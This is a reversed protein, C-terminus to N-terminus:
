LTQGFHGCVDLASRVGDEHFGYYWYAGCFYTHNHGNIAQRRKRAALSLPDYVPHDYPIERIVQARDVASSLNLTVCFERPAGLSQLINMNYTLAVRGLDEKPVHYNWSAWAVKRRPLLATDTHLIADNDQFRINGLVEQEQDSPDALMALAQHSHAAIIVKDFAEPAQGRVKVTVGHDRRTVSEVPCQLRIKDRFRRTMPEIYSNSGGKIVLWGPQNKINLIGHNEFFEVFLRAPFERFHLPDASWISDGMPIIFHDIFAKSYRNQTLYQDLTIRDDDGKLLERAERRFRFVDRLMRYFSPNFLNKRQCFLANLSTPSFEIGTRACQVSFSMNSDQWTVGLRGLLKVFNPYTKLNFVIFGTDVPYVKGNLPIDITNTHGGIYDNAEFVTVDHSESLLYASTLGSIGSGIVAIKM